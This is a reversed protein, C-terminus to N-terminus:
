NVAIPAGLDAPKLSSVYAQIAEVQEQTLLVPVIAPPNAEGFEPSVGAVRMFAPHPNRVYYTMMREAWDPLARLAMFSPTSGITTASGPAVRHCRACHQRALKLGLAVDGEFTFEVAAEQLAGGEFPPGSKPKFAALTRQGIDSLLWEEFRAAAPNDSNRILVYLTTGRKMLAAAGPRPGALIAIDASGEVIMARRGTKLAFRPLLYRALGSETIEPALHLTFQREEARLPGTLWVIALILALYKL